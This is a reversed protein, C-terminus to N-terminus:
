RRHRGRHLAVRYAGRRKDAPKDGESDVIRPDVPRDLGVEEAAARVEAPTTSEPARAMIRALTARWGPPRGRGPRLNPTNALKRARMYMVVAMHQAFIKLPAGPGVGPLTVMRVSPDGADGRAVMERCRRVVEAESDNLRTCYWCASEALHHSGCRQCTAVVM